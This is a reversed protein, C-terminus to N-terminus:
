DIYPCGNKATFKYDATGISLIFQFHCWAGLWALFYTQFPLAAGLTVACGFVEDNDEIDSNRGIQGVLLFCEDFLCSSPSLVQGQTAYCCLVSLSAHGISTSRKHKVGEM